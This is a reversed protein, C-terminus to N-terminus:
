KNSVKNKLKIHNAFKNEWETYHKIVESEPVFTKLIIIRVCTRCHDSSMRNRIYIHYIHWIMSPLYSIRLSLSRLMKM